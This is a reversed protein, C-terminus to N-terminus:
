RNFFATRRGEQASNRIREAFDELIVHDVGLFYKSWLRWLQDYDFFDDRDLDGSYEARVREDNQMMGFYKTGPLIVLNGAFINADPFLELVHQSYEYTAQATAPTEGLLGILFPFHGRIGTKSLLGLAGEVGAFVYSKGARQLIEDSTSEIGIFAEEFNLRKMMEITDLTINNASFYGKLAVELDDPKTDILRQPWNGAKFEDGTEWFKRLGYVEHLLRIQRWYSKPDMVGMKTDISCFSCRESKAAKSCGYVGALPFFNERNLQHWDVLSELDFITDPRVRERPNVVIGDKSRYALGKISELPEGAILASLAKEGPGCIVYDVYPHIALIREPIANVSPGGVITMAGKEKAIRALKMANGHSAYTESIGVIDGNLQAGVSEISKGLGDVVRVNARDKVASALILLGVPASGLHVLQEKQRYWPDGPARCLYVQPVTM